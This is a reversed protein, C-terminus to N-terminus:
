VGSIMENCWSDFKYQCEESCIYSESFVDISRTPEGCMMCSQQKDALMHCTGVFEYGYKDTNYQYKMDEYKM